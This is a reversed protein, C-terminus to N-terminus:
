NNLRKNFFSKYIFYFSIGVMVIGIVLRTSSNMFMLPLALAFVSAPVYIKAFQSGKKADQYFPFIVSVIAM